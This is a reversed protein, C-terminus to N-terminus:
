PEIFPPEISPPEIIPIAGGLSITKPTLRCSFAFAQECRSIIM